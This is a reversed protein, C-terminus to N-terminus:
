AVEGTQRKLLRMRDDGLSGGLGEEYLVILAALFGRQYESDAPDRLFGHLAQEVYRSARMADFSILDASM